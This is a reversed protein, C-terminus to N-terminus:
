LKQTPIEECQSFQSLQFSFQQSNFIGLNHWFSPFFNQRSTGSIPFEPNIKKTLTALILRFNQPGQWSNCSALRQSEFQQIIFPNETLTSADQCSFMLGLNAHMVACSTPASSLVWRVGFASLIGCAAFNRMFTVLADTGKM